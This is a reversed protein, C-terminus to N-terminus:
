RCIRRGSHQKWEKLDLNQLGHLTDAINKEIQNRVTYLQLGIKAPEASLTKADIDQWPFVSTGLVGVTALNLFERRAIQRKLKQLKQSHM